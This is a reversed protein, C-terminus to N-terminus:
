QALEKMFLAIRVIDTTEPFSVRLEGYRVIIRSRSDSLRESKSANESVNDDSLSYKVLSVTTSKNEVEDLIFERVRRLRYYYQQETIDHKVCWERLSLGSCRFDESERKWEAINSRRKFESVRM